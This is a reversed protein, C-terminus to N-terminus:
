LSSFLEIGNGETLREGHELIYGWFDAPLGVAFELICPFEIPEGSKGYEDIALIYKGATYYVDSHPSLEGVLRKVARSANIIDDPTEFSYLSQRKSLMAVKNSKSVLRASSEPLIGLKTVFIECGGGNIPYLQILVKDGAPDFGVESKAVDLVRWFSRRVGAGGIEPSAADLKYKKMEHEDLVIKLKSEGILLFELRCWGSVTKIGNYM